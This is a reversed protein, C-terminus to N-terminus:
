PERGELYESHAQELAEIAEPCPTHETLVHRKISNYNRFRTCCRGRGLAAFDRAFDGVPGKRYTAARLWQSFYM